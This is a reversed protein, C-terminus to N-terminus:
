LANGIRYFRYKESTFFSQDPDLSLWIRLAKGKINEAPVFGWVRSDSSNDRNDGMFFYHGAPVQIKQATPDPLHNIRQVIHKVDALQEMKWTVEGGMYSTRAGRPPVADDTLTLAKGNITIWGDTIEIEDGPMGILRKVFDISEDVPYRFVVVDGRKPEDIKFLTWRTFPFKVEYASKYVILRDGPLITPEMSGTPVVYPEAVSWRFAFIVAVLIATSLIERLIAKKDKNKFFKM